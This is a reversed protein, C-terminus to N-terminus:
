QHKVLFDGVLWNLNWKQFLNFNCNSWTNFRPKTDYTNAHTVGNQAHPKRLLLSSLSLSLTLSLPFLNLKTKFSVFWYTLSVAAYKQPHFYVWELSAEQDEPHSHTVEMKENSQIKGYVYLSCLFFYIFPLPSPIIYEFKSDFWIPSQFIIERKSDWNRM